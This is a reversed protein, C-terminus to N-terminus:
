QMLECIALACALTTTSGKDFDTSSKILENGEITWWVSLVSQVISWAMIRERDLKLVESFIDIRKVMTSKLDSYDSLEDPNRLFAGVEYSAEGLIGKPDIVLWNHNSTRSIINGHHLDGHLLISTEQSALLDPLLVEIYELLKEPFVTKRETFAPRELAILWNTIHPFIYTEPMPKSAAIMFDKMAIAAVETAKSDSLEGNRLSDRLSFGPLIQEQLLVADEKSAHILKPLGNGDIFSLADIETLFESNPVGCKFVLAEGNAGLAPAVFNFSLNPFPELVRINWLAEYRKILEPLGALFKKANDAFYIDLNRLFEPNLPTQPSFYKM